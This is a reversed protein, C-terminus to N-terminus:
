KEEFRKLADLQDRFKGPIRDKEWKKRNVAVQITKVRALLTHQNMFEYALSFSADSLKGLTINITLEHGLRIPSFYEAQSHIVPYIVESQYIVMSIPIDFSLLMDEFAEQAINYVNGFFIVGAPDIEHLHVKRNYTYM